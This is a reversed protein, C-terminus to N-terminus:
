SAVMAVRIDFGSLSMVFFSFSCFMDRTFVFAFMGGLFILLNFGVIYKLFDNGVILHSKNQPAFPHLPPEVIGFRDVHYMVDILSFILAM